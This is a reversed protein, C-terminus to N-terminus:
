GLIIGLLLKVTTCEEDGMLSVERQLLFFGNCFVIVLLFASALDWHICRYGGGGCVCVCV